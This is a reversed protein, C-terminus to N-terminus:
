SLSESTVGSLICAGGGRNSTQKQSSQARVAILIEMKLVASYTFFSDRRCPRYNLFLCILWALCLSSVLSTLSASCAPAIQPSGVLCMLCALCVLIVSCACLIPYCISAVPSESSCIACVSVNVGSMLLLERPSRRFTAEENVHLM